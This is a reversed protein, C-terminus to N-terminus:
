TRSGTTETDGRWDVLEAPRDTQVFIPAFPGRARLADLTCVSVALEPTRELGPETAALALLTQMRRKIAEHDDGALVVLVAPFTPYHESWAPQGGPSTRHYLRAYRSLKAALREVPLTARDLELFRYEATLGGEDERALYTLVADAMVAQRQARSSLPHAIEHRWSLPGFDDGRERAAQVFAIGVDNVTLTHSQLQGAAQEPTLVRRRTEARTALQEVLDAGSDTLYWARHTARLRTFQALDRAALSALLRQTWRITAHPTHLAHIQEVTLLRHQYLSELVESALPQPLSGAAASM